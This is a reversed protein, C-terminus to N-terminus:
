DRLKGGPEILLDFEEPKGLDSLPEPEHVKRGLLTRFLQADM